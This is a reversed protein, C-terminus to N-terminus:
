KKKLAQAIIRATSKSNFDMLDDKMNQDSVVVPTAAVPAPKKPEAVPVKLTADSVQQEPPLPAPEAMPAEEVPPPPPPAGEAPPPPPPAEEVPPAPPMPEEPMPPPAEEMPPAMPEVPPVDGGIAAQVAEEVQTLKDLLASAEERLADIIEQVAEEAASTDIGRRNLEALIATGIGEDGSFKSGYQDMFSRTSERSMREQDAAELAALREQLEILQEDM